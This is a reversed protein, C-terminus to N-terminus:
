GNVPVLKKRLVLYALAAVGFFVASRVGALVLTAALNPHGRTFVLDIASYTMAGANGSANVHFGLASRALAIMGLGTWLWVSKSRQRLALVVCTVVLVAGVLDNVLLSAFDILLRYGVPIQDPAVVPLPSLLRIMASDIAVIAFVFLLTPSLAFVAWPASATLSRRPARELMAQVLEEDGGLLTEARQIAAAPELSSTRVEAILDTLHEDLETVYRRVHRPAVGARLLGETLAEFRRRM